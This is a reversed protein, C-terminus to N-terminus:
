VKKLCFVVFLNDFLYWDRKFLVRFVIVIWDLRVGALNFFNLFHIKEYKQTIVRQHHKSNLFINNKHQFSFDVDEMTEQALHNM